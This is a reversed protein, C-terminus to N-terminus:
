HTFRVDLRRGGTDTTTALYHDKAEQSMANWVKDKSKNRMIYYMKILIIFVVNWAILGLM